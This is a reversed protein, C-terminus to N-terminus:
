SAAAVLITTTSVGPVMSVFKVQGGEALVRDAGVIKKDEYESGKVLVNPLMKSILGSLEDSSFLTVADAFHSVADVRTSQDQVPRGEGKLAKVSVDTDVAVVLRRGLRSASQLLEVHGHHLLDFCGNTFVVTDGNNKWKQVVAIVEEHTLTVGPKSALREAVDGLSVITTGLQGVAVAAAQNAWDVADVIYRSSLMQKALAALFTDGAGTTDVVNTTAAPRRWAATGCAIVAGSDGTTVVVVSTQLKSLMKRALVDAQSSVDEFLMAPHEGTDPVYELAEAANVKILSAGVYRDLAAPKADVVMIVKYRACVAALQFGIESLTGKGHDVVVMIKVDGSECAQEIIQLLEAPNSTLRDDGDVRLLHNNGTVYRTRTLTHNDPRRVLRIHLNSVDGCAQELDRSAPDIGTAGVLLTPVGMAALNAAVNAAGGPCITTSGPVLVPVPAEAALRAVRGRVLYDVMVDGIVIAGLKSM